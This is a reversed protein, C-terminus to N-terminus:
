TRMTLALWGSAWSAARASSAPGSRSDDVGGGDVVIAPVATGFAPGDAGGLGAIAQKGTGPLCEPEATVDAAQVAHPGALFDHVADGAQGGVRSAGGVEVM